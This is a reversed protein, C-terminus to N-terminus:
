AASSSYRAPDIVEIAGEAVWQGLLAELKAREMRTRTLVWQRNVPRSSMVSLMRYIEATRGAETLEPWAKLRYILDAGPVRSAPRSESFSGTERRGFLRRMATFPLTLM